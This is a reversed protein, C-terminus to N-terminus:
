KRRKKSDFALLSLQLSKFISPNRCPMSQKEEEKEELAARPPVLPVELALHLSMSERKLRRKKQIDNIEQGVQKSILDLCLLVLREERWNDSQAVPRLAKALTHKEHVNKRGLNLM